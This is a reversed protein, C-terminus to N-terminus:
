ALMREVPVVLLGNAGNRKLDELTQWSVDGHCVVQLAVTSNQALEFTTPPDSEPLLAMLADLNERATQFMLLRSTRQKLAGHLRRLLLEGLEARDGELPTAPGALVAESELVDAVPTLQNAALTAGSSVLDVVVDAQGLKPAIEVSGALTVIDVEIENEDAWARTVHPYSTAIRMGNVTEPGKWRWGDPVALSLRCGGFGLPVIETFLVQRNSYELRKSEETVVNRGVIGYDCVGSAILGPIDDDRVLLLDVPLGEGVFFLGDRHESWSLGCAGLLKRSADSLRGSKQIAIRLRNRVPTSPSSTM